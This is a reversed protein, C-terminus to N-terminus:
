VAGMAVLFFFVFVVFALCAARTLIVAVLFGAVFSAALFDVFFVAGAAFTTALFFTAFFVKLLAGAM